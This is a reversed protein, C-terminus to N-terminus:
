LKQPHGIPKQCAQVEVEKCFELGLIEIIMNDKEADEHLKTKALDVDPSDAYFM